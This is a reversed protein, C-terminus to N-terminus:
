GSWKRTPASRWPPAGDGSFDETRIVAAGVLTGQDPLNPDPLHPDYVGVWLLPYGAAPKIDEEGRSNM